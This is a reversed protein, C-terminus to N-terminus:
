RQSLNAKLPSNPVQPSPNVGPFSSDKLQSNYESSTGGEFKGHDEHKSFENFRVIKGDPVSTLCHLKVLQILLKNFQKIPDENITM